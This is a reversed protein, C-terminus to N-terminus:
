VGENLVEDAIILYEPIHVSDRISLSSTHLFRVVNEYLLANMLNLKNLEPCPLGRSCAIQWADAINNCPKVPTGVPFKTGSEGAVLDVAVRGGFTQQELEMHKQTSFNSTM